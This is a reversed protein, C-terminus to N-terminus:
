RSAPKMCRFVINGQRDKLQTLVEPAVCKPVQWKTVSFLGVVLSEAQAQASLAVAAAVLVAFVSPFKRMSVGSKPRRHQAFGQQMAVTSPAAACAYLGVWLCDVWLGCTQGCRAVLGRVRVRFRAIGALTM